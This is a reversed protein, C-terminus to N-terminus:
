VGELKDNRVAILKIKTFITMIALRVAEQSMMGAYEKALLM